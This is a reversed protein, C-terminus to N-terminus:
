AGLGEPRRTATQGSGARAPEDTADEEMGEDDDEDAPRTGSVLLLGMGDMEEREDVGAEKDTPESETEEKRTGAAGAHREAEVGGGKEDRVAGAGGSGAKAKAMAMAVDVPGAM